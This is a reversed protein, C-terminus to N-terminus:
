SKRKMKPKWLNFYIELHPKEKSYELQLKSLRMFTSNIDKVRNSFIKAM